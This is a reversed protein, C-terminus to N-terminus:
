RLKDISLRGYRLGLRIPRLFPYIWWLRGPLQLWGWDEDTPTLALRGLFTARDLPRDRMALHWRSLPTVQSHRAFLLGWLRQAVAQSRADSEIAHVARSPLELPSLNRALALAVLLRRRTGSRGTEHLLMGWDVEDGAVHLLGSLDAIWYLRRWLHKAGHISLLLLLDATTFTPISIGGLELNSLREFLRSMDLQEGLDSSWQLDVVLGDDRVLTVSRGYRIWAAMMSDSTPGGRFGAAELTRKARLVDGRQIMFDLDLSRRLGINGFAFQALSPGKFPVALIDRREFLQMIEVLGRALVLSSEATRRSDQHLQDRAFQPVSTHTRLGLGFLAAVNHFKVETLCRSWAADSLEHDASADTQFGIGRAVSDTILDAVRFSTDL